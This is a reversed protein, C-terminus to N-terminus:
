RLDDIEKDLNLLERGQDRNKMKLRSLEGDPGIQDALAGGRDEIAQNVRQTIGDIDTM